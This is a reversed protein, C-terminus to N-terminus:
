LASSHRATPWHRSVPMWQGASPIEIRNRRSIACFAKNCRSYKVVM